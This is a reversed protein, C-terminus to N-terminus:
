LTASQGVYFETSDVYTFSFDFYIGDDGVIRCLQDGSKVSDGEKVSVETVTGSIPATPYKAKVATEYSRQAQTLSNQMQSADITYLLQDETVQDGEQFYDSVIEGTVLTPETYSDAPQLTGSGTLSNTIDRREAAVEEYTVDVTKMARSRMGRMVFFGAVILIVVLALIVWRKKLKKKQKKPVIDSQEQQVLEAM